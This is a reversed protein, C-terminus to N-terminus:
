DKKELVNLTAMFGKREVFIKARAILTPVEVTATDGEKLQRAISTNVSRLLNSAHPPIIELEVTNNQNDSM